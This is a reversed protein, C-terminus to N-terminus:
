PKRKQRLDIKLDSFDGRWGDAVGRYRRQPAAGSQGRSDIDEALGEEVQDGWLVRVEKGLTEMSERWESWVSGWEQLGAYIYGMEQLVPRFRRRENYPIALRRPSAPPIGWARTAKM